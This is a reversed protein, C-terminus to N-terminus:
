NYIPTGGGPVFGVGFSNLGGQKPFVHARM